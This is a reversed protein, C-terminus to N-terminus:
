IVKAEILKLALNSGAEEPTGGEVFECVTNSVRATFEMLDTRRQEGADVEVDGATMMVAKKKQAIRLAPLSPFRLAFLENDVTALAPMSVEVEAYGGPLTCELKLAKEELEFSKVRSVCPIDLFEAIGIGVQGSNSDAAQAGCLILDYAGIKRIAAAMGAATAYSDLDEFTDDQLLVLEDAGTAVGQDLVRKSLSKGMSLISIKGGHRDKLRLAAELANADFPSILPAVGEAVVKKNTADIRFASPPSDPDAVQKMCVIIRLNNEM